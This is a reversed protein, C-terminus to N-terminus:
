DEQAANEQARQAARKRSEVVDHMAKGIKYMRIAEKVAEEQFLLFATYLFKRMLLGPKKSFAAMANYHALIEEEYAMAEKTHAFLTDGAPWKRAIGPRITKAPAFAFFKNMDEYIEIAREVEEEDFDVFLQLLAQTECVFPVHNFIQEVHEPVPIKFFTQTMVPNNKNNTKM